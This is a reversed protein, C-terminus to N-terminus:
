SFFCGLLEFSTSVIVVFIVVFAVAVAVAAIIAAIIGGGVIIVFCCLM